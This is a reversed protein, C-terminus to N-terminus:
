RRFRRNLEQQMLWIRRLMEEESKSNLGYGQKMSQYERDDAFSSGEPEPGEAADPPIYTYNEPMSWGAPGSTRAIVNRYKLWASYALGGLLGGLHGAHSIGGSEGLSLLLSIGALLIAATRARMPFIFVILLANPFYVALAGLIGIVAGSAGVTVAQAPQLILALLAGALGAIFYLQFFAPSGIEREIPKGISWLAIMNFALHLLGGHIFMSTVPQWLRFDELSLGFIRFFSQVNEPELFLFLLFNAGIFVAINIKIIIGTINRM